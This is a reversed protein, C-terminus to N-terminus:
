GPLSRGLADADDASLERGAESALAKLVSGMVERYRAAPRESQVRPELQHYRALLQEARDPGFLRELETRIGANWDVLTGYCDFTAWRANEM